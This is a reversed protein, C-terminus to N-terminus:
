AAVCPSRSTPMIAACVAANRTRTGRPRPRAPMNTASSSRSISSISSRRCGPGAPSSMGSCVGPPTRCATPRAIAAVLCLVDDPLQEVPHQIAGPSVRDPEGSDEIIFGNSLITEGEPLVFRTAVNGFGDTYDHTPIAPDSVLKPQTRLDQHRSEHVGLLAMMPTPQRTTFRIDYGARILM